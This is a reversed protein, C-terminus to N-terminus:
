AVPRISKGIPIFRPVKRKYELYEVGFQQELWPEETYPAFINLGIGFIGIMWVMWSNTLIMFGIINLSDGLYQPNRTYHYPGRTILKDGLGLTARLSFASYTWFGIASGFIFVVLAIPLRIWFAPLFASDFNLLGLLFGDAGVIGVM